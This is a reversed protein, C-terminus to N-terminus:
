KKKNLKTVSDEVMEIEKQLHTINKGFDGVKDLIAIQMKDFMSQIRKTTNELDDIKNRYVTKFEKLKNMEKEIDKIKESFVQESVEIITETSTPPASQYGYDDQYNQDYGSDYGQDYNQYGGQNMSPSYNQSYGQGQSPEYHMPAQPEPSQNEQNPAQPKYEEQPKPPENQSSQMMSPQMGSNPSEKNVAEKIKAREFSDNIEMPKIGEEKLKQIIEQDSVGKAQMEKIREPTGM